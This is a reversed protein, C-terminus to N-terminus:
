VMSSRNADGTEAVASAAAAEELAAHVAPSGAEQLERHGRSGLWEGRVERPRDTRTCSYSRHFLIWPAAM